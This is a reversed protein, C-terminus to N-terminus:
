IGRGDSVAYEQVGFVGAVHDGVAFGPNKSAVVKGAGYARMVDGLKAPPVYSKGDNMWGRMAPDLSVYEIQVLLQGDGPEPTPEETSKWDSVKPLGVPRAALRIQHNTM